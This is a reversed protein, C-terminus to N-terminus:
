ASMGNLLKHMRSKKRAAMNKHFVGKGAGTDILKVMLAFQKEAEERNASAVAKEFKKVETRVQSRTTKNRMRRERSQRHRKGASVQKAM